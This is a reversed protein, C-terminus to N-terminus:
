GGGIEDVGGEVTDKDEGGDGISQGGREREVSDDETM